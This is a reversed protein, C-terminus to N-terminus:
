RTTLPITVPPIAMRATMDAIFSRVYPIMVLRLESQSFREPFESKAPPKFHMHVVFTCDIALLSREEKSNPDLLTLSFRGESEFYKPGLESVRYTQTFKRVPKKEKMVADLLADREIKASSDKLGLGM